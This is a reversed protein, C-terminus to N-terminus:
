FISGDNERTFKPSCFYKEDGRKMFVHDDWNSLMGTKPKTWDRRQKRTVPGGLYPSGFGGQWSLVVNSVRVATNAL